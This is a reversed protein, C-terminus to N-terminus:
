VSVPSAEAVLLVAGAFLLTDAIYNVAENIQSGQTAVALMPGYVFLVLLTVLLGTWGAAMRGKRDLFLAAGTILFAMGTLYSLLYGEPVWPPMM